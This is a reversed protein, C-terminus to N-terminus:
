SCRPLDVCTHCVVILDSAPFNHAITVWVCITSGAGPQASPTLKAQAADPRWGVNWLFGLHLWMVHCYPGPGSHRFRTPLRRRASARGGALALPIEHQGIM